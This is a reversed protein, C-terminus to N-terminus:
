GWSLDYIFQKQQHPGGLMAHWGCSFIVEKEIEQADGDVDIECGDKWCTKKHVTTHLSWILGKQKIFDAM